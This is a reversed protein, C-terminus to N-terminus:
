LTFPANWFSYDFADVVRDEPRLGLAYLGVAGDRGMDAAERRSFYVRKGAGVTTGTTEFGLEPRGCLFEDIPNERLDQATTFFDGLDEPGRVARVDLGIEKFRRRYFPSCEGVYRILHIFKQRRVSAAVSPSIWTAVRVRLAVNNRIILDDFLEPLRSLM